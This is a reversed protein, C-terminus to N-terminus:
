SKRTWDKINWPELDWPTLDIGELSNAAAAPSSRDILPIVAVDEVTLFNNMKKIQEEREKADTMAVLEAFMADYTPNCYRSDNSKAWNNEKQAIEECLYRRLYSTPDPNDNGTTYMQLDAYFHGLNDPNNPESDFFISADISKLELDIGIKSFDQKIIEQTKQRVPNVSTQFVMRMEVGGKDRIGNNNSDVWGAEDLLAAAKELNFEWPANARLNEPSLVYDNTPTGAVGYIQDATTQRDVALSLAKRVNLDTLFPHPVDKHSRQGDKEVNPDSFNIVIREMSPGPKPIVRGIGTAELQALVAAEVQTNWAYDADGTQLVARAASTADGGGKLEVRKFFPKGEERFNKNAVYVIVDGPRVEETIYPGTGIPALNAPAERSNPGNYDKFIHKPIIMGNSGVFPVFWAVTPKKFTIKVTTPDVAEVSAVDAYYESTIAGVESNSVYEYTFVVDEATFPEGDAWTVGSKLKWTVSTLDKAVGGNEISPIEAALFPVMEGRADFSALPEYVLRSAEFDKTGTSLHPNLLTPAQWYLLRLTDDAQAQVPIWHQHVLLGGVVFLPILWLRLKVLRLRLRQFPHFSM